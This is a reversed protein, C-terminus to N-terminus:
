KMQEVVDIVAKVVAEPKSQQIVHTAEPVVRHEGITSLKSLREHSDYGVTQMAKIEAAPVTDPSSSQAGATLVILPLKGYSVRRKLVQASSADLSDQESLVTQALRAKLFPSGPPPSGCEKYISNDPTMRGEAAALICKGIIVNQQDYNKSWTPSAKRLPALNGDISPDVFVMGGVESRHLDTYLQLTYGAASHGVLVVPGDSKLYSVVEHLDAANHEADRPFPGPDSAGYGARDYSCTRTKLSLSAQVKDWVAAPMGLGSDLIITPSGEGSCYLAIQRGDKLKVTDPKTYIDSGSGQANASVDSMMALSLVAVCITKYM